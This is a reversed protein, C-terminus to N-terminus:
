TKQTFAFPNYNSATNHGTDLNTGISKSFSLFREFSEPTALENQDNVRAHGHGGWIIKFKDAARAVRRAVAVTSTSSIAKVKLAQAMRFAHEIEDDAIDAAMNYCLIDLHVGSNEFQQRVKEFAGPSAQARWEKR